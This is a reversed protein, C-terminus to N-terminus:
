SNDDMNTNQHSTLMFATQGKFM